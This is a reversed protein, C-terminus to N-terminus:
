GEKPACGIFQKGFGYTYVSEGGVSNCDKENYIGEYIKINYSNFGGPCYDSCTNGTTIKPPFIVYRNIYVLYSVVCILVIASMVLIVLNSKTKILKRFQDM